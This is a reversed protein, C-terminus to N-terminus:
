MNKKNIRTLFFICLPIFLIMIIKNITIKIINRKTYGLAYYLINNKKEDIIINFISIFSLIVFLIIVIKIFLNCIFIINKYDMNDIQQEEINVEVHYKDVIKKIIKDKELWNNFIIFYYFESKSKMLSNFAEPNSIINTRNRLSYNFSYNNIQCKLDSDFTENTIPKDKTIFVNTLRNKCDVEIAKNYVKIGKERNLEIDETTVFYIFSNKYAENGKEVIYNKSIFLFAFVISIVLFMEIYIKTTKKKLFSKYILIM